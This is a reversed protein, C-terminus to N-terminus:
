EITAQRSVAFLQRTITGALCSARGTRLMLRNGRSLHARMDRRCPWTARSTARLDNDRLHNHRKPAAKSFFHRTRNTNRSATSEASARRM